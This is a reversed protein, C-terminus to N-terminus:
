SPERVQIRAAIAIGFAALAGVGLIMAWIPHLALWALAQLPALALLVPPRYVPNRVLWAAARPSNRYYWSVFARGPRSRMLVESRFKRLTDLPKATSSRFAATAIFCNGDKLFGQIDAVRVDTLTCVGGGTPVGFDSIAGASDRVGFSVGYSNNVDRTSNRFGEARQEGSNIEVAAGVRGTDSNTRYNSELTGTSPASNLNATVLITDIPGGSGTSVTGAFGQSTNILLAGDSPYYHNESPCAALTPQGSQLRLEANDSVGGSSSFSKATSVATHPFVYVHIKFSATLDPIGTAATCGSLTSGAQVSFALCIARPSLDITVPTEKTIPFPAQYQTLGAATLDGSVIPSPLPGCNSTTCTAGNIKSIPVAHQISSTSGEVTVIVIAVNEGSGLTIDTDSEVQIQLPSTFDTITVTQFGSDVKSSRAPAALSDDVAFYFTDRPDQNYPIPQSITISAQASSAGLLALAALARSRSAIEGFWCKGSKFPM